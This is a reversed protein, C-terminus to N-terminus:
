VPKVYDATRKEAFARMGEMLDHDELYASLRERAGQRRREREEDTQLQGLEYQLRLRAEKSARVSDPGM